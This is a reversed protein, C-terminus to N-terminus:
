SPKTNFNPPKVLKVINSTRPSRTDFLITYPISINIQGPVKLQDAGPAIVSPEKVESITGILMQDGIKVAIVDGVLLVNGVFDVPM